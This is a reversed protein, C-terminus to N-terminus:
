KLNIKNEGFSEKGCVKINSIDMWGNDLSRIRNLAPTLELPPTCMSLSGTQMVLIVDNIDCMLNWQSVAAASGKIVLM